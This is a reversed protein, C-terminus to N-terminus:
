CTVGLLSRIRVKEPLTGAMAITSHLADRDVVHEPTLYGDESVFGDLDPRVAKSVAPSGEPIYRTRAVTLPGAGLPCAYVSRM